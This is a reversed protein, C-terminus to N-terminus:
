HLRKRNKKKKKTADNIITTKKVQIDVIEGQNIISFLDELAKVLSREHQKSISYSFDKALSIIQKWILQIVKHM